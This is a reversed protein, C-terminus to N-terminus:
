LVMKPPEYLSTENFSVPFTHYICGLLKRFIIYHDKTVSSSLSVGKTGYCIFHMCFVTVDCPVFLENHKLFYFYMYMLM